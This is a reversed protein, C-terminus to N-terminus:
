RRRGLRPWRRQEIMSPTVFADGDANEWIAAAADPEGGNLLGVAGGVVAATTTLAFRLPVYVSNVLTAALTVGLEQAPRVHGVELQPNQEAAGAVGLLPGSSWGLAIAFVRACVSRLLGKM